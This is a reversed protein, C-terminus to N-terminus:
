ALPYIGREDPLRELYSKSQEAIELPAWLAIITTPPIYSFLSTSSGTDPLKGKLDILRVSDLTGQSGLTDLDFRKISEIQDGFFDVRIALGVEESQQDFEGPLY